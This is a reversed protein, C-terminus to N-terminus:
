EQRSAMWEEERTLFSGRGGLSVAGELLRELRERQLSKGGPRDFNHRGQEYCVGSIQAESLWHANM